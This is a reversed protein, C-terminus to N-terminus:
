EGINMRHVWAGTASLSALKDAMGGGLPPNLCTRGFLSRWLFPGCLLLPLKNCAPFSPRCGLSRTFHIFAVTILSFVTALKKESSVASVRVTIVLFTAMKELFLAGGSLIRAVGIGKSTTGDMQGCYRSSVAM